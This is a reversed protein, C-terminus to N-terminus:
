YKLKFFRLDTQFVVFFYFNPVGKKIFYFIVVSGVFLHYLLYEGVQELNDILKVLYNM